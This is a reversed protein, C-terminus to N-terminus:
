NAAAVQKQLEQLRSYWPEREPSTTAVLRSLSRRCASVLAEREAAESTEKSMLWQCHALHYQCKLLRDRLKEDDDGGASHLTAVLKSWGWIPSSGQDNSPGDIAARLQLPQASDIAIQELTEAAEIQIAFANPTEKLLSELLPVVESLNGASRLLEARRITASQRSAAPFDSRTMALTYAAAAKEYCQKGLQPSGAREALKSWSEGLWLVNAATLSGDEKLPEILESLTSFQDRTIRPSQTLQDIYDKAVGLFLKTVDAQGGLKAAMMELAQKAGAADRRGSRVAFLTQFASRMFGESVKIQQEGPDAAVVSDVVPLPPDVLWSEADALDGSVFAMRALSLKAAMITTTPKDADASISKVGGALMDQARALLEQQEPSAGDAGASAQKRYHAWLASGGALQAEGFRKSSDAVQAYANGAQLYKGYADYRQALNMWILDLQPNDPWRQTIISAIAQMHDLEGVDSPNGWGTENAEQTAALAIMAAELTAPQEPDGWRAVAEGMVSAESLRGATFYLYTLLYRLENVKESGQRTALQLTQQLLGITRGLQRHYADPEGSEAADKKMRSTSEYAQFAESYARELTLGQEGAPIVPIIPRPPKTKPLPKEPPPALMSDRNNGIDTTQAGQDPNPIPRPSATRASPTMTPSMTPERFSDIALPAAGSSARAGNSAPAAPTATPTQSSPNKVSVTEQQDSKAAVQKKNDRTVFMIISVLLLLGVAAIGIISVWSVPRKRRATVKEEEEDRNDEAAQQSGRASGTPVAVPKGDRVKITFIRGCSCEAQEGVDEKGVSYEKKCKPCAVTRTASRIAQREAMLKKADAATNALPSRLVVTPVTLHEGCECEVDEGAGDRDVVYQGGCSACGVPIENFGAADCVFLTIGCECETVHGIADDDLEYVTHCSPCQGVRSM